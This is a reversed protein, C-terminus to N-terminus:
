SLVVSASSDHYLAVDQEITGMIIPVLGAGLPRVLSQCHRYRRRRHMGINGVTSVM